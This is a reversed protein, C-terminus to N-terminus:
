AFNYYTSHGARQYQVICAKCTHDFFSCNPRIAAANTTTFFDITEKSIYWVPRAVHGHNGFSLYKELRWYMNGIICTCCSNIHELVIYCGPAAFLDNNTLLGIGTFWFLIQIIKWFLIAAPPITAVPYCHFVKRNKEYWCKKTFTNSAFFLFM